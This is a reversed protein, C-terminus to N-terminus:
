WEWLCNESAIYNPSLFALFLRSSRLGDGLERRWDRGLGISKLDFFAQLERGTYSQHRRRLEREFAAVWGEGGPNAPDPQNDKRAYSLFLHYDM